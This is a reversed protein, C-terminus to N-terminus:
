KGGFLKVKTEEESLLPVKVSLIGDFFSVTANELSLRKQLYFKKEFRAKWKSDVAERHSNDGVVSLERGRMYVEVDEERFGALALQIEIGTLEEGGTRKEKDDSLPRWAAPPKPGKRPWQLFLSDMLDATPSFGLRQDEIESLFM